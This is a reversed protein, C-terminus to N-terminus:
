KLNKKKKLNEINKELNLDIKLAPQRKKLISPRKSNLQFNNENINLFFDFEIKISDDESEQVQRSINNTNKEMLLSEIEKLISRYIKSDSKEVKPHHLAYLKKQRKHM